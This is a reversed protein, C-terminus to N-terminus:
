VNRGLVTVQNGKFVAGMVAGNNDPTARVFASSAIVTLVAPEAATAAAQAVPAGALWLALVGLLIKIALGRPQNNLKM